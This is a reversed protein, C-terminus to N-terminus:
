SVVVQGNMLMPLLWDRLTTLEQTQVLNQRILDYCSMAVREYKAAIDEEPLLVKSQKLFKFHRAYGYSSLDIRQLAQYFLPPPLRTTNSMLLQTGDAGRAFAFNIFKLIRTHDGFIIQPTGEIVADGDNTFGCVFDKSQDVVPFRGSKLVESAPIKKTQSEKALVEGM